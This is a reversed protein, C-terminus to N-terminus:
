IGLLGGMGYIWVTGLLVLILSPVVGSKAIDGFSFYKEAYVVTTSPNLPLIFNGSVMLVVLLMPIAPSMGVADAYAFLPPLFLAIFAPAVPLVTHLLYLVTAVLLLVILPDLALIGSALFLNAVYAAGGTAGLIGGLSLIAGVMLIINWPVGKQLDEWELLKVGPLFMIALGVIAVTTTNLAPIWNGAVWLVPIGIIMILSKIETSSLKGMHATSGLVKDISEQTVDEPKLIKIMFFWCLPMMVACLPLGIAAWEVFGILSGNYDALIGAGLVNMSHGVPLVFGGLVAAFAIGLMVCKGFNSKGPMAGLTKLFPLALGVVIIAAGTNTIILSILATGLMFAFILKKSSAGAWIILRRTLRQGLNTKMMLVTLAFVGIVFFITTGAFGGFAENIPVVGFVAALVLVLLGTIGAPFTECFWLVVATAMIALGMVGERSLEESGPVFSCAALIIVSLVIGVIGKVSFTKKMTQSTM